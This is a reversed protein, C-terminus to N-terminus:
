VTLRWKLGHAIKWIANYHIAFSRAISRQSEGAALRIRAERVQDETLKAQGNSEGPHMRGKASCDKLNDDCTGLFLHVSRICPRVDCRHLVHSGDPIPGNAIVWSARHAGLLRGAFYVAGYAERDGHGRGKQAFPWRICPFADWPLRPDDDLGEILRRLWEHKTV